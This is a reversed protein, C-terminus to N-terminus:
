PRRRRLIGLGAAGVLALVVTGPEPVITVHDNQQWMYAPGGDAPNWYPLAITAATSSWNDHVIWWYDIATNPNGDVDLYGVGTVTHGMTEDPMGWDYFMDVEPYNPDSRPNVPFWIDFDILTPRGNNIAAVFDTWPTSNGLNAQNVSWANTTYTPSGVKQIGSTPDVWAANGYASLGPAIDSLWTGLHGDPLGYKMPDVDNTDLQWGLEINGDHWLGQQWTPPNVNNPYAPTNPFAQRDTIGVFGKADEWWGFLNAAATPTCYNDYPDANNPPPGPNPDALYGDYPQNWDPVNQIVSIGALAAPLILLWGALIAPILLRQTKMATCALLWLISFIFASKRSLLM